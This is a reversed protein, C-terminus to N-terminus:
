KSQEKVQWLAWFLALAPDKCGCVVAKIWQKLVKYLEGGDGSSMLFPVAYKFLNNLDIPPLVFHWNGNKGYTEESIGWCCGKVRICECDPYHHVGYGEWFEKIRAEIPKDM